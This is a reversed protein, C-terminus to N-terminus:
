KPKGIELNNEIGDVKVGLILYSKELVPLTYSITVLNLPM